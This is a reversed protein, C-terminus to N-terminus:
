DREALIEDLRRYSQEMGDTMGTALAADRSEDSGFDIVTTVTTRGNGEAFGVTVVAPEDGMHEGTDGPDFSETHRLLEPARVELFEGHFGFEAGKEESRWRWRFRGGERVDMECIPMSWGPPGLLWRRILDPETFARYVLERPADFTREVRVVGDEPISVQAGATQFGM